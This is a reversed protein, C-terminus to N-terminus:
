YLLGYLNIRNLTKLSLCLNWDILGLLDAKMEKNIEECGKAYAEVGFGFM